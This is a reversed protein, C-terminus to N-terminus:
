IKKLSFRSKALNDCRKEIFVKIKWIIEFTKARPVFGALFQLLPVSNTVLDPPARAVCSVDGRARGRLKAEGRRARESARVFSVFRNRPQSVGGVEM